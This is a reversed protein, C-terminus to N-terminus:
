QELVIATDPRVEQAVFVLSISEASAAPAPLPSTVRGQAVLPIQGILFTYVIIWADIKNVNKRM